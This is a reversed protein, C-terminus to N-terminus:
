SETGAERKLEYLLDLAERPSLADVDLGELRERLADVKAEAADLAAAFLPMDGLGAALGGTEARGKELRDLVQKARTLVHPPVGALRAV